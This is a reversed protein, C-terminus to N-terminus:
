VRVNWYETNIRDVFHVKAGCDPCCIFESDGEGEITPKGGCFPCPKLKPKFMLPYHNKCNICPEEHRYNDDYQCDECKQNDNNVEKTESEENDSDAEKYLWKVVHYGCNAADNFKCISCPTKVCVKPKGNVVALDTNTYSEHISLIEDKFKEFNTM